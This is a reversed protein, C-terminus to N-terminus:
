YFTNRTCKSRKDNHVSYLPINIEPACCNFFNLLFIERKREQELLKQTNYFYLQISLIGYVYRCICLLEYREFTIKTKLM